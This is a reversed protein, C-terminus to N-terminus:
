GNSNGMRDALEAGRKSAAKVAKIVIEEFDGSRLVELAKETTGGPSTVKQRLVSAEDGSELAIKAAGFATQLTLLRAVEPSLGLENGAQQISEMLLFFYAPGSGSVATVADLLAEDNVWVTAGVARMLSEAQNRQDQSTEPAAYLASIGAGVAAPTNPMTRVLPLERGLWGLIAKTRVGAAISVILPAPSPICDALQRCVTELVQPKTALVVIDAETLAACNDAAVNVGFASAIEQRRQANPEAVCINTGAFGDSILGRVLSGAMNGGGIFVIRAQRM